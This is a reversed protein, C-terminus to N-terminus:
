EMLFFKTKLNKNNDCIYSFYFVAKCIFNEVFIFLSTGNQHANFINEPSFYVLM